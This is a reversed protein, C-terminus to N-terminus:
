QKIGFVKLVMCEIGLEVIHRLLIYIFPITM